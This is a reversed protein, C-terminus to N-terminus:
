NETLPQTPTPGTHQKARPGITSDLRGQTSIIPTIVYTIELETHVQKKNNHM